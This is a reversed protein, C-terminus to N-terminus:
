FSRFGGNCWRGKTRYKKQRSHLVCMTYAGLWTSGYYMTSCVYYM